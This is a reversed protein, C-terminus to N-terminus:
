SAAAIKDGRVAVADGSQSVADASPKNIYISVFAKWAYVHLPRCDEFRMIHHFQCYVVIFM